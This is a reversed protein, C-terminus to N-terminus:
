ENSSELIGGSQEIISEIRNERNDPAVLTLNLVPATKNETDQGMNLGLNTGVIQIAKLKTSLDKRQEVIFGMENELISKTIGLFSSATEPNEEQVKQITHIATKMLQKQGTRSYHEGYGAEKASKSINGGNKAINEVLKIARTRIYPKHGLIKSAARKSLTSIDNITGNKPQSPNTNQEHEM